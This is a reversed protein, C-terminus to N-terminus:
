AIKLSLSELVAVSKIFGQFYLETYAEKAVIRKLKTSLSFIVLLKYVGRKQTLMEGPFHTFNLLTLVVMTLSFSSNVKEHTRYCHPEKVKHGM